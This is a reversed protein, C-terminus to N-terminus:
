EKHAQEGTITIFPTDEGLIYALDFEANEFDNGLDPNVTLTLEVNIPDGNVDVTHDGLGEAQLTFVEDFTVPTGDEKEGVKTEGLGEVLDITITSDLSGFNEVLIDRTFVEGPRVDVTYGVEDMKANGHTAIVWDADTVEVDIDGLVIGVKTTVEAKDTFYAFSGATAGVLLTGALLLGALKKKNM